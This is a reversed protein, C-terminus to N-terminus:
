GIVWNVKLSATCCTCRRAETPLPSLKLSSRNSRVDKARFEGFGLICELADGYLGSKKTLALFLCRSCFRLTNLICSFEPVSSVSFDRFLSYKQPTRLGAVPAFKPPLRM